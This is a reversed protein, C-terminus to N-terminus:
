RLLRKNTESGSRSAPNLYSLYDQMMQNVATQPNPAASLQANSQSLDTLLSPSLMESSLNSTLNNYNTLGAQQQGLSTLGLNRLASNQSLGSGPMGSAVGWSAAQDQIQKIVDTPVVGALQNGITSSASGTLNSLGPIVSSLQDYTSPPAATTGPVLGYATGSGTGATPTVNYNALVPNITAM